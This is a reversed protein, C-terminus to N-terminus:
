KIFLMDEGRNEKADYWTIADNEEYFSGSGDTYLIQVNPESYDNTYEYYKKVANGYCIMSCSETDYILPYIWEVYAFASDAWTIKGLYTGDDNASIDLTARGCGWTGTYNEEAAIEDEGRGDDALGGAGYTWVYHVSNNNGTYFDLKRESGDDIFSIYLKDDNTYFMYWNKSTDEDEEYKIYGTNEINGNAYYATFTGSSSIFIHAADYEGDIYWYGDISSFNDSDTEAPKETSSEASIEPETTETPAKTPTETVSIETQSTTVPPETVPNETQSTTASTESIMSENLDTDMTGCGSVLGMAAFLLSFIIMKKNM